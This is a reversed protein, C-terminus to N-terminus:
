PTTALSGAMQASGTGTRPPRQGGTPGAPGASARSESSSAPGSSRTWGAPDTTARDGGSSPAAAPGGAGPKGRATTPHGSAAPGTPGPGGGPPGHQKVADGVRRRQSRGCSPACRSACAAVGRACRASTPKSTRATGCAACRAPCHCEGRGRHLCWQGAGAPQAPGPGDTVRRRAPRCCADFYPHSVFKDMFRENHPERALCPVGFLRPPPIIKVIRHEPNEWTVAGDRCIFCAVRGACHGFLLCFCPLFSACPSGGRPYPGRGTRLRFPTYLPTLPHCDLSAGHGGAQKIM